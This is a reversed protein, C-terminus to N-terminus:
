GNSQDGVKSRNVRAGNRFGKQETFKEDIDQQAQKPYRVNGQLWRSRLGAM